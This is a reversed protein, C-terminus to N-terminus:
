LYIRGHQVHACDPEAGFISWFNLTVGSVEEHNYKSLQFDVSITRPIWIIKKLLEQAAGPHQWHHLWFQEHPCLAQSQWWHRLCGLSSSFRFDKLKRLLYLEHFWWAWPELGAICPLESSAEGLEAVFSRPVLFQLSMWSLHPYVQWSDILTSISALNKSCSLAATASSRFDSNRRLCLEIFLVHNGFGSSLQAWDGLVSNSVRIDKNGQLDMMLSYFCCALSLPVNM